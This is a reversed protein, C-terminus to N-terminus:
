EKKKTEELYYSLNLIVSKGASLVGLVLDEKIYSVPPLREHKILDETSDCFKRAKHGRKKRLLIATM